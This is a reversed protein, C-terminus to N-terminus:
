RQEWATESGALLVMESMQSAPHRKVFRGLHDFLDQTHLGVLLRDAL